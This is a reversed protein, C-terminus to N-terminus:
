AKLSMSICDVSNNFTLHERLARVIFCHWTHTANPLHVSLFKDGKLVFLFVSYAERVPLAKHTHDWLTDFAM